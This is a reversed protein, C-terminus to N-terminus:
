VFQGLKKTLKMTSALPPAMLPHLCEPIRMMIGGERAAMGVLTVQLSMLFSLTPPRIRTSTQTTQTFIQKQTHEEDNQNNINNIKQEIKLKTLKKSFLKM